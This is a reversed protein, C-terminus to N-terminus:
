LSSFDTGGAVRVGKKEAAGADGRKKGHPLNEEGLAM